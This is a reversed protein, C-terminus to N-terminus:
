FICKPFTETGRAPTHALGGVLCKPPGQTTAPALPPPPSPSLGQQTGASGELDPWLLLQLRPSHPLPFASSRPRCLRVLPLPRPDQHASPHPFTCRLIGAQQPQTTPPGAGLPPGQRPDPDGIEHPLPVFGGSPCHIRIGKRSPGRPAACDPPGQPPTRARQLTPPLPGAQLRRTGSSTARWEGRERSADEEAAAETRLPTRSAVACGHPNWSPPCSPGRHTPCFHLSLGM